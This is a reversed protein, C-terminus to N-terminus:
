PYDVTGMPTAPRCRAIRRATLWGGRAFGYKEIALVGYRSCSPQFRCRFGARSVMPSGVRQYLHIVAISAKGTWQREPSRSADLIVGGLFMAAIFLFWLLAPSFRRRWLAARTRLGKWLVSV